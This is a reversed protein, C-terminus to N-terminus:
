GLAFTGLDFIRGNVLLEIRHVGPHHRRTTLDRLSIKGSVPFMAGAPLTRSTLKFVKVSSKGSAKPYHVRYDIMVRRARGGGNLLHCSFEVTGGRKVRRPAVRVAGIVMGSTGAFGLIALADANGAKVLSRLAHRILRKREPSADAMWRRACGLLIRPHDKGIDNLHNAVSRRVYESPDDKLRELLALTPAPDKQFERLRGAWPLRPRTGESVLRRVHESPDRTWEKLRALTRAPNKELFPRISFEATFRQTIEYQARMSEEFHDLGNEAVFFAHPMYLFSSLGNGMAQENPAGLSRILIKVAQPFSKPLHKQLAWAIRRGRPMLELSEYGDLCDALFTKADFPKWVDAIMRAIQAPVAPGYQNKLPEAM